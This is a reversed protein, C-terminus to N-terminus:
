TIIIELYPNNFRWLADLVFLIGYFYLYLRIWRQNIIQGSFLIYVLLPASIYIVANVILNAPSRLFGPVASFILFLILFLFGWPVAIKKKSFPFYIFCFSLVLLFILYIPSILLVKTLYLGSGLLWFLGLTLRVNM